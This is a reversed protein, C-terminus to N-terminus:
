NPISGATAAVSRTPTGDIKTVHPNKGSLVGYLTGAGGVILAAAAVYFLSVLPSAPAGKGTVVKRKSALEPDNPDKYFSFDTRSCNPCTRDNRSFVYGCDNCLIINV